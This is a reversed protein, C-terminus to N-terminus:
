KERSLKKLSVDLHTTILDYVFTKTERVLSDIASCSLTSIRWEGQQRAAAIITEIDDPHVLDKRKRVLNVDVYSKCVSKLHGALESLLEHAYEWGTPLPANGGPSKPILYNKLLNINEGREKRDASWRAKRIVDSLLHAIDKDLLYTPEIQIAQLASKVDHQNRAVSALNFLRDTPLPKIEDLIEGFSAYKFFVEWPDNVSEREGAISVCLYGTQHDYYAGFYEPETIKLSKKKRTPKKPSDASPSFAKAVARLLGKHPDPASRVFSSNRILLPTYREAFRVEDLGKKDSFIFDFDEVIKGKEKKKEM